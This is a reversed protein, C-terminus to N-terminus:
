ISMANRFGNHKLIESFEHSTKPMKSITKKSKGKDVFKCAIPKTDLNQGKKLIRHQGKRQARM